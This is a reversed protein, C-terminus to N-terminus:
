TERFVFHFEDPIIIALFRYKLSNIIEPSKIFNFQKKKLIENKLLYFFIEDVKKTIMKDKYAFYCELFMDQIHERNKSDKTVHGREFGKVVFDTYTSRAFNIVLEECSLTEHYFEELLDLSHDSLDDPICLLVNTKM